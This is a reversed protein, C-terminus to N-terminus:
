NTVTVTYERDGCPTAFVLKFDGRSTNTSEVSFYNRTLQTVKLNAPGTKFTVSGSTVSWRISGIGGLKKISLTTPEAYVSCPTPSPSPSPSPSAGPSPSVSPSPSAQNGPTPSAVPSPSPDQTPTATPYASPTPTAVNGNLTSSNDIGAPANVNVNVNPVDDLYERSDITVDGSKTVDITRQNGAAELAISIKKDTASAVWRGRWDFRIPGPLANAVVVGDDFTVDRTEITGNGDFDMTVRYTRNTLFTVGAMQAADSAHRRVSDVRTKELYSALLRASNTLRIRTRASAIGFVALASTIAIVTITIVVQMVSFGKQNLRKQSKNSTSVPSM